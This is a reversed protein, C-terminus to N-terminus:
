LVRSSTSLDADDKRGHAVIRLMQAPLPRQMELAIKTPANLWVDCEEPTTLIVLMAKTHVPKVVDNPATTPFAYLAHQGDEPRSKTGRPGTWDCWLNAFAFLPRTEDLAFWTWVKKGDRGPADSPERFSTAPGLCRNEPGLWRRWHSSATNRVNTV